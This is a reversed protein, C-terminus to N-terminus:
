ISLHTKQPSGYPANYSLLLCTTLFTPFLLIPAAATAAAAAAEAAAAAVAGAAAASPLKWKLSSEM